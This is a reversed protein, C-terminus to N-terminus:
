HSRDSTGLVTACLWPIDGVSFSWNSSTLPGNSCLPRMVELNNSGLSFSNDTDGKYFTKNEKGGSTPNQLKNSPVWSMCIYIYTLLTSLVPKSPEFM